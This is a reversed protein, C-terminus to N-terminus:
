GKIAFGGDVVFQQGTVFGAVESALVVAMKAVDEPWTIRGWPHMGAWAKEMQEGGYKRRVAELLPTDCYGPHLSNVHIKHEAYELASARTLSTVAGKSASYSTTYKGGVLGYVSSMNIIWGRDGSSHPTQALMQATAYKIGLWAGRVNIAMTKDFLDVDTQHLLTPVTTFSELMVGANNVLIDLRGYSETTFTVAAAVNDPSTVDCKVYKCRDKGDNGPWNTNLLEVTPTRQDTQRDKSAAELLPAEPPNSTIDAVVVYAGAAAYALAIQRGIGSSAGTILAIKDTLDAINSRPFPVAAM